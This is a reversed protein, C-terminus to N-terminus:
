KKKKFITWKKSAAIIKKEIKLLIKTISSSKVSTKGKIEASVMKAITKAIPLPLKSKVLVNVIKSEKYPQTSKDKKVIKIM